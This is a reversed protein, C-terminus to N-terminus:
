FPDDVGGISDDFVDFTDDFMRMSDDSTDMGYPNGEIDVGSMGGIMLNGNAPNIDMLGEDSIDEISSDEISSSGFLFSFIGM